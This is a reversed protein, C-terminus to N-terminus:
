APFEITPRSGDSEHALLNAFGPCVIDHSAHEPGVRQLLSMAIHGFCSACM